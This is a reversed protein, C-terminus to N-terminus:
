GKLVLHPFVQRSGNTYGLGFEKSGAPLIATAMLLKRRIM